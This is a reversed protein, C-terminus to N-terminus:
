LSPTTPKYLNEKHQAYSEQYPNHTQVSLTQSSYLISATSKLRFFLNKYETGIEELDGMKRLYRVTDGAELCVKEELNSNKVTLKLLVNKLSIRLDQDTNFIDELQKILDKVAVPAQNAAFISFIITKFKQNQLAYDDAISKFDIDPKFISVQLNYGYSSDIKHTCFFSKSFDSSFFNRLVQSIRIPSVSDLEKDPFIIKCFEMNLEIHNAVVNIIQEISILDQVDFGLIASHKLLFNKLQEQQSCNNQDTIM